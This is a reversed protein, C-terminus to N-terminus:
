NVNTENRFVDIAYLVLVKQKEFREGELKLQDPGETFVYLRARDQPLKLSTPNNQTESLVGLHRAVLPRWLGRLNEEADDSENWPNVGYGLGNMEEINIFRALPLSQQRASLVDGERQMRYFRDRYQVFMAIPKEPFEAGAQLDFRNLKQMGEFAIKSVPLPPMRLKMRSAFSRNSFPPIDVTFVGARGNNIEGNVAESTSCSSYLRGTGQHELKYTDGATAFVNSFQNVDWDGGSDIQQVIAVSHVASEEGYGRRGVFLFVLSFLAVCGLIAGYTVLYHVKRRGLLFCGPFILGIYVFSLLYILGWNHDPRTMEKLAAFLKNDADYFTMEYGNAAAANALEQDPDVDGFLFKRRVSNMQKIANASMKDTSFDHRFVVGSEIPQVDLPGNMEALEDVFKPFEGDDNKLLHVVGGLRLWDMFARRRPAEWRPVHGIVMTKLGATASVLAPFREDSFRRMGRGQTTMDDAAVLLVTEADGVRPQPVPYKEKGWRLSWGDAENCYPFFQVMRDQYPGLSIPEVIRAGVTAGGFTSRTLSLVGEVSEDSPNNVMVTLINFENTIVRGDFGWEADKVDVAFATSTLGVTLLAAITIAIASLNKM